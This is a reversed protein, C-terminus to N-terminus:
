EPFPIENPPKYEIGFEEFYELVELALGSGVKDIYKHGEKANTKNQDKLDPNWIFEKPDSKPAKSNYELYHEHILNQTGSPLIDRNVLPLGLLEAVAMEISTELVQAHSYRNDPVIDILRFGLCVFEKSIGNKKLFERYDETAREAAHRLANTQFNGWHGTLIICIQFGIKLMERYYQYFLEEILDNDFVFCGPMRSWGYTGAYNTPLLAGAGLKILAKEAAYTASHSDLGLANHNGHWELSGTPLIAVPCTNLVERLKSLSFYEYRYKIAEKLM